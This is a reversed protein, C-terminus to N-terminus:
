TATVWAREPFAISVGCQRGFGIEIQMTLAHDLLAQSDIGGSCIECHQERAAAIISQLEIRESVTELSDQLKRGSVHLYDFQAISKMMRFQSSAVVGELMLRIGIRNLQRLVPSVTRLAKSLSEVNLSLCIDSPSVRMQQCQASVWQPFEADIQNAQVPLILQSEVVPRTQQNDLALASLVSVFLDTKRLSGSM